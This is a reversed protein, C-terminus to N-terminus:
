GDVVGEQELDTLECDWGREKTLQHRVCFKVFKEVALWELGLRLDFRGLLMDVQYASASLKEQADTLEKDFVAKPNTIGKERIFPARVDESRLVCSQTILENAFNTLAHGLLKMDKITRVSLQLGETEKILRNM